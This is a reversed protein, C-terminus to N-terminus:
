PKTTCNLNSGPADFLAERGKAWLTVAGSSYKAGSGSPVRPLTWMDGKFEVRASGPEGAVFTAVVESHDDCGYVVRTPPEARAVVALALAGTLACGRLAVRLHVRRRVNVLVGPRAGAIRM